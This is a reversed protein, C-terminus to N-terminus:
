LLRLSLIKMGVLPCVPVIKPLCCSNYFMVEHRGSIDRQAIPESLSKMWSSALTVVTDWSALGGSISVREAGPLLVGYGGGIPCCGLRGGRSWWVWPTDIDSRLHQFLPAGDPPQQPALPLRVRHRGRGQNGACALGRDGGGVSGAAGLCRPLSLASSLVRLSKSCWCCTKTTRFCAAIKDHQTFPAAPLGLVDFSASVSLSPPVVHM